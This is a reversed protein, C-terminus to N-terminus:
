NEFNGQMWFQIDLQPTPTHNEFNDQTRTNKKIEMTFYPKEIM